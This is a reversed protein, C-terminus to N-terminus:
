LMGTYTRAYKAEFAFNCYCEANHVKQYPTLNKVKATDASGYGHDTITNGATPGVFHALEHIITTVAYEKTALRLTECLYISDMRYQGWKQGSCHFGGAFTFAAPAKDAPGPHFTDFEFIFSGWYGTPRQFVQLMRRFTLLIFDFTQQKNPQRKFDFHRNLLRLREEPSFVSLPGSPTSNGLIYPQAALLNTEAAKVCDMAEGVFSKMVAMMNMNSAALQQPALAIENLRLWTMDQKQIKDSTKGSFQYKQFAAIAAKTWEDLIGHEALTLAPGGQDKPVKNLARQIAKVDATLNKGGTGVTSTLDFMQSNPNTTTAANLHKCKGDSFRALM